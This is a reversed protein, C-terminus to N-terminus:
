NKVPEIAIPLTFAVRVSKGDSIAPKWHPMQQLIRTVEEDIGMGLGRVIKVQTLSGDREVIFSAIVKGGAGNAKAIEPYKFNNTIYTIVDRFSTGYMPSTDISAFSHVSNDEKSVKFTDAPHTTNERVVVESLKVVGDHNNAASAKPASTIAKPPVPPVNYRVQSNRKRFSTLEYAPTESADFKETLTRIPGAYPAASSFVLMGAFLPASLGYKLLAIKGSKTKHLMVIRKKLLSKTYFSNLLRSPSVGFTSSVLLLAYDSKSPQHRAAEEDAIFEHIHRIAKRSLHIVPNFWNIIMVIEFLVVDASHWQRAHVEEHSMVTDRSSVSEPVVIRKFFSHAQSAKGPKSFYIIALSRIFRCLFFVAGTLYVTLALSRIRWSFPTVTAVSAKIGPARQYLATGMVHTVHKVQQTVLLSQIWDSRLVPILFSLLMTALLYLRNLRFWTENRLLLFYFGYFLIIYCNVQLLYQFGKM